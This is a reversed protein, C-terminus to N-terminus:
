ETALPMLTKHPLLKQKRRLQLAVLGSGILVMLWTDMKPAEVAKYSSADTQLQHEIGDSSRTFVEFTGNLAKDASNGAAISVFSKGEFVYIAANAMSGALLGYTSMATVVILKKLNM